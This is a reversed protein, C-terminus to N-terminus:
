FQQKSPRWYILRDEVWVLIQFMVLSMLAVVIIMAWVLQSNFNSYAITIQLGIGQRAAVFEGVIAGIMAIPL